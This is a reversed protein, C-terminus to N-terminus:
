LLGSLGDDFMLIMLNFYFGVMLRIRGEISSGWGFIFHCSFILGMSSLDGIGYRLTCSGM